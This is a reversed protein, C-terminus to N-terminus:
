DPIPIFMARLRLGIPLFRNFVFDIAMQEDYHREAILIKVTELLSFKLFKFQHMHKERETQPYTDSYKKGRMNKRYINLEETLSYYQQKLQALQEETLKPKEM